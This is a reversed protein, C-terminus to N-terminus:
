IEKDIIYNIYKDIMKNALELHSDYIHSNGM